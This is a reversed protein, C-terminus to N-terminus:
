GLFARRVSDDCMLKKIDGELVVSGTEIVYCNQAVKAVLNANQEVLLISIGSKNINNIVDALLDIVIPALGLSPEDMMLLKPRSMLARGIALMQQEGGSLSGAKQNIRERLRPFLNFVQELDAAIESKDKRLYAGLRINEIVTMYPFLKKGEPVYAIGLDVIQHIPLHNISKGIFEIRGSRLSVLGSIAKLITSKGAGNAGIVSVVAGDGVTMSINEVAKATEYYVTVDSLKLIM